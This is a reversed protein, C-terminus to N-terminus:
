VKIDDEIELLQDFLQNGEQLMNNLYNNDSPIDYEFPLKEISGKGDLQYIAVDNSTILALEPVIAYLKEFLIKKNNSHSMEIKSKLISAQIALTLFNIMYPSHTTMILCNDSNQNACSLLDFLVTRQSAPFLNQEPEEIINLFSQNFFHSLFKLLKLKTVDSSLFDNQGGFSYPVGAERLVAKFENNELSSPLNLYIEHSLNMGEIQSKIEKAVALSLAQRSTPIDSKKADSLFRSVLILPILSQIGSASVSVPITFTRNKDTIYSVAETEDYFFFTNEVPLPELTKGILRKAKDYEENLTYLTQPLGSIKSAVKDNVVSLFSREAPVYMIKPRVYRDYNKQIPIFKEDKISFSYVQGDFEIETEKRFYEKIGLYEFRENKLMDFDIEEETYDGRMLAKEIWSFASILKAITSKGSGQFGCFLTIKEVDLWGNDPTYGQTIPGFNKVRIRKM